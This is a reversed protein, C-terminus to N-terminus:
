DRVILEEYGSTYHQAVQKTKKDIFGYICERSPMKYEFIKNDKTPLLPCPEKKEAGGQTPKIQLVENEFEIRQLLGERSHCISVGNAPYKKGNCEHKSKLKFRPNDFALIGWAHKQKRNYASIYLPCARGKELAPKYNIKIQGNRRFIGDDPNESTDERHCTTMTFLNLKGYSTVEIDYSDRHPLVGVGCWSYEIKGLRRRATRNYGQFSGWHIDTDDKDVTYKFCIDNKYYVEPNLKQANMSIDGTVCSMLFLLTFLNILWMM